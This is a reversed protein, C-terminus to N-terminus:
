GSCAFSRLALTLTVRPALEVVLFTLSILVLDGPSNSEPKKTREAISPAFGASRSFAPSTILRSCPPWPAAIVTIEFYVKLM